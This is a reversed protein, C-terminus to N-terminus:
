KFLIADSVMVLAFYSQWVRDLRQACDASLGGRGAPGPNSWWVDLQGQRRAWWAQLDVGPRILEEFWASFDALPSGLDALNGIFEGQYPPDGDIFRRALQEVPIRGHRRVAVLDDYFRSAPPSSPVFQIFGWRLDEDSVKPWQRVYIYPFLEEGAGSVIPVPAVPDPPHDPDPPVPDPPLPPAPPWPAPSPVVGHVPCVVMAGEFHHGADLVTGYHIDAMIATCAVGEVHVPTQQWLQGQVYCGSRWRLKLRMRQATVQFPEAEHPDGGCSVRALSPRGDFSACNVTFDFVLAGDLGTWQRQAVGNM